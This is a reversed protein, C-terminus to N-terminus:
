IYESDRMSLRKYKALHRGICILKKTKRLEISQTFGHFHNEIGSQAFADKGRVCTFRPQASM